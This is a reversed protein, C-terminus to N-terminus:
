IGNGTDIKLLVDELDICKSNSPIMPIAKQKVFVKFSVKAFEKRIAHGDYIVKFDISNVQPDTISVMLTQEGAKVARKIDWKMKNPKAHKCRRPKPLHCFPKMIVNLANHYQRSQYSSERLIRWWVDGIELRNTKLCTRLNENSSITCKTVPEESINDPHMFLTGCLFVPVDSRLNSKRYMMYYQLRCHKFGSKSMAIRRKLINLIRERSSIAPLPILKNQTCKYTFALDLPDFQSEGLFDVGKTRAKHPIFDPFFVTKPDARYLQNYAPLTLIQGLTYDYHPKM